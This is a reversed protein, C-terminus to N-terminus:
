QSILMRQKGSTLKKGRGAGHRGKWSQVFGRSGTLGFLDKRGLSTKYLIKNVTVSCYNAGPVWNEVLSRM